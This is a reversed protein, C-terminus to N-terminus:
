SESPSEDTKEKHGQCALDPCVTPQNMRHLAYGLYWASVHFCAQSVVIILIDTEWEFHEVVPYRMAQQVEKMREPPYYCQDGLWGFLNPRLGRDSNISDQEVMWKVVKEINEPKKAEECLEAYRKLGLCEQFASVRHALHPPM